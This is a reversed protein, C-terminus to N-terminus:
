QLPSADRPPEDSPSEDLPKRGAYGEHIGHWYAIRAEGLKWCLYVEEGELLSPFDVQGEDLDKVLCGTLQVETIADELKALLQAREAQKEALEACPPISGGLITIRTVMQSVDLHLAEARQKLKRARELCRGILPLLEEAEHRKFYKEAM